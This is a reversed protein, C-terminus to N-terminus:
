SLNIKTPKLSKKILFFFRYIALIIFSFQFIVVFYFIYNKTFLVNLISEFKPISWFYSTSIFLFVTNLNILWEKKIKSAGLHIILGGIYCYFLAECFDILSNQSSLFDFYDIFRSELYSSRFYDRLKSVLILSTLNLLIVLTLQDRYEELLMLYYDIKSFKKKPM